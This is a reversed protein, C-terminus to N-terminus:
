CFCLSQPQRGYMKIATKIPSRDGCQQVIASRHRDGLQWDLPLALKVSHRGYEDMAM